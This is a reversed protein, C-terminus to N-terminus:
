DAEIHEVDRALSALEARVFCGSAEIAKQTQRTGM